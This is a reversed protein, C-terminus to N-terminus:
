YDTYLKQFTRTKGETWYRQDITSKKFFWLYKENWKHINLKISEIQSLVNGTIPDQVNFKPIDELSNTKESIIKYSLDLVCCVAAHNLEGDTVVM